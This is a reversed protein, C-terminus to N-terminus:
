GLSTSVSHAALQSYPSSLRPVHVKAHRLLRLACRSPIQVFDIRKLADRVHSSSKAILFLDLAPNWGHVTLRSLNDVVLDDLVLTKRDRGGNDRNFLVRGYGDVSLSHFKESLSNRVDNLAFTFGQGQLTVTSSDAIQNSLEIGVLGGNRVTINSRVAIAGGYKGLYLHSDKGDVVVDSTFASNHHGSIRIIGVGIEYPNGKQVLLGVKGQANDSIWGEIRLANGAGAKSYFRLTNGIATTEGEGWINSFGGGANVGGEGV